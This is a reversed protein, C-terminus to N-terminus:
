FTAWFTEEDVYTLEGPMGFASRGEEADPPPRQTAPNWLGCHRLISEIVDGQLPELFAVVKMEGGCNPFRLPDVEYVRKILM